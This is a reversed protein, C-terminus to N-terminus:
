PPLVHGKISCTTVNTVTPGIKYFGRQPCTMQGKLYPTIDSLTVKDEPKKRNDLAWQQIACDM